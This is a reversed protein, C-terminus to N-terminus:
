LFEFSFALASMHVARQLLDSLGGLGRFSTVATDIAQTYEYTDGTTTPM